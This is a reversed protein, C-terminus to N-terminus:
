SSGGSPRHPVRYRDFWPLPQGALYGTIAPICEPESLVEVLCDAGLGVGEDWPRGALQRTLRKLRAVAEPRLRLATRLATRLAQELEAASEVVRDVLGISQAAAADISTGGLAFARAQQPLMRELLLPMVMAPLLGLVVEPLGFTSARTCLVLDAAAVLGVGGALAVGDVLSLVLKSSGRLGLLCDAFQRAGVAVHRAPDACLASLDMGRCFTGATGELVLVRCSPTREAEGLLETLEGLGQASLVIEGSPGPSLQIRWVPSGKGRCQARM